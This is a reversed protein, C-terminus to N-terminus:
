LGMAQKVVANKLVSIKNLRQMGANRLWRAPLNNAGFLRKFGEMMAMMSLNETKRSRQYRRLISAESLPLKRKKARLIEDRLATM